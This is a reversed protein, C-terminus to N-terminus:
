SYLTLTRVLTESENGVQGFALLHDSLPRKSTRRPWAVVTIEDGLKFSDPDFGRRRMMPLSAMEVEYRQVEGAENEVDMLLHSHLSRLVYEAAVGTLETARSPDYSSVFSHHALASGSVGLPVILRISRTANM